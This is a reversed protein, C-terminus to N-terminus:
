ASGGTLDPRLAQAGRLYVHVIEDQKKETNWHILVRVCHPLGAPVPIETACMLAVHSWGAMRAAQAPYVADLDTTVTFLASAIDEARMANAEQIAHLLEFTAKLIADASNEEVTIAGRVGRCCQAM